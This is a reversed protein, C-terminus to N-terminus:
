NRFWNAIRDMADQLQAPDRQFCIRLFGEGGPGFASGPALGVGAEDILRFTLERSNDEGEIGFFAYFSGEPAAYKVKNSVSLAKGVIDRGQEAQAVQQAIFEDGQELAVVCARHFFKAVGSTNYQILNEMTQGIEPATAIWGVRWGTMAWNKSFTNTFLIKDGPQTEHWFSPVSGEGFYFKSYVEDSIVWLDRERAFAMVEAMQEQSMVWGTPNGPSILFLAKTKPTVADFYQNLDLKWGDPAFTLPVEVPIAGHSQVAAPFNPWTPSPMVIEEGKSAVARVAMQISQMGSGTLCFMDASFEGGFLRRHYAALAERVEPIGRQESYFTEGAAMSRAAEATIFEPTPLHGEGVWLPILGKRGYGYKIADIIGSEPLSQAEESLSNLLRNQPDSLLSM